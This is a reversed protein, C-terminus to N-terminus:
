LSYATIVNYKGGELVLKRGSLGEPPEIEAMM